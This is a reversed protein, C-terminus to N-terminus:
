TASSGFPQPMGATRQNRLYNARGVVPFIKTHHLGHQLGGNCLSSQPSQHQHQYVFDFTNAGALSTTRTRPLKLPRIVGAAKRGLQCTPLCCPHCICLRIRISHHVPCEMSLDYTILKYIISYLSIRNLPAKALARPMEASCCNNYVYASSYDGPTGRSGPSRPVIFYSYPTKWLYVAGWPDKFLLEHTLNASARLDNVTDQLLTSTINIVNHSPHPSSPKTTSKYQTEKPQHLEPSSSSV